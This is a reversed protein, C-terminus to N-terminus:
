KLTVLEIGGKRGLNGSYKKDSPNNWHEHVGLSAFSKGSKDPDYKIGEPWFKSSAAQHLYDDVGQAMNARNKWQPLGTKTENRLFDFCVSEIAVPDLSVFVSSPWDNKFPEMQWKVPTETAETGGWIGDVIYLLTKGGLYSSAMLDVQVRYMGYGLRYPQDNRSGVLGSHLHAAKTTTISGFHNKAGFTVGACGHAKLASMNIMYDAEQMERFLCDSPKTLVSGNDSYFIVPETEATLIYRGFESTNSFKDGYKVGPYKSHLMEYIDAYIHAMPDSVIIKEQPVGVVGTLQGIVALILQPTSEAYGKSGDKRTLDPKSNWQACGYNVKLFVTEGDAYGRDGKGKRSNFYRFIDNWADKENKRGTVSVISAAFMGDIVERNNNKDLWYGDDISLDNTCNENTADSNWAWVVRGPMLGQPVGFPDNSVHVPDAYEPKASLTVSQVTFHIFFAAALLLFAGIAALARKQRLTSGLLRLSASIGTIGSLWIVIGSMLPYAAKMCPYSARQPKPIVRVLFWALAIIGLVLARTRRSNDALGAPFWSKRLGALLKPHLM